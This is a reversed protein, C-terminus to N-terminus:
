AAKIIRVFGSLDKKAQGKAKLGVILGGKTDLFRLDHEDGNIVDVNLYKEPINNFVMAVNVNLKLAKIIDKENDEAASFTLDYNSYQKCKELRNIIKTYDYFQVNNFLEFINKNDILKILEWQIDSTGNLRVVLQQDNHKIALRKIENQLHQMFNDRFLIFYLTKRIRSLQISDFRGRGATNLCAAKCGSSAKPCTTGIRGIYNYAQNAPSLHLIYSKFSKFKEGSKITKSNAIDETLLNIKKLEKILQNKESENLQSINKLQELHKNLTSM